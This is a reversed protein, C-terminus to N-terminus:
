KKRLLRLFSPMIRSTCRSHRGDKDPQPPGHTGLCRALPVEVRILQQGRPKGDRSDRFAACEPRRVRAMYEEPVVVEVKMVSLMGKQARAPKKSRWSGAIQVWKTATWMTIAADIL